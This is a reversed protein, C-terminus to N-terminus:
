QRQLRAVPGIFSRLEERDGGLLTFRQPSSIHDVIDDDYPGNGTTWVYTDINIGLLM